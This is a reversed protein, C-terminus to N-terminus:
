NESFVEDDYHNEIANKYFLVTDLNIPFFNHCDLGVNLGYRRVMQSKHIHGFLNFLSTNNNKICKSPEHCMNLRLENNIDVLLSDDRCISNFGFSLLKEDSLNDKREYNGFILNIKGNLKSVIRYAGFDGLHYVIDDKGVVSNWNEILIDDMEETTKFPRRSLELTRISSFHTDSTFWINM